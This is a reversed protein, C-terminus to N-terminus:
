LVTPAQRLDNKERKKLKKEFIKTGSKNWIRELDPFDSKKGFSQPRPRGVFCKWIKCKELNGSKGSEGSEMLASMM